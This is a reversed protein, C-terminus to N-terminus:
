QAGAVHYRLNSSRWKISDNVLAFQVLITVSFGYASINQWGQTTLQTSPAWYDEDWFSGLSAPPATPEISWTGHGQGPPLLVNTLTPFNFDAWGSVSIYKPAPHTSQIQVATLHKQLGPNDLYNFAPLATFNIPNGDDATTELLALVRGEESGAFLRQGHVEMCNAPIDTFKCWRMTVTNLVHQEYTGPGLPCNFLMLGKKAFLEVDWGYLNGFFQTRQQIADSILRSFAPVDSTRGQQILTSLAIYGDRTMLITDAGYKTSGRISLPEATTYRGVFEWYGITEPDDGQYVLVEGTSFVFVIFDDKGDGSDQQTWTTVLTIRGGLQAFNGLDFKKLEGEYGGAQAYYFANDTEKWYYMRGKYQVCGVFDAVFTPDPTDSGEPTYTYIMDRLQFDDTPTPDTDQLIQVVDIGNCMVLIGTEDQKRFNETQWRDSQYTGIPALTVIVQAAVEVPEDNIQWMGGDAAAVLISDDENDLSAVTEVPGTVEPLTTFVIHGERTDVSGQGPIMNNLIVAADPPMNDLSHYADWGGIPADLSVANSRMPTSM